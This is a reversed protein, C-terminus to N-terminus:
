ALKGMESGELVVQKTNGLDKSGGKGEELQIKLLNYNHGVNNGIM